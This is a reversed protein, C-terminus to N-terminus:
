CAFVDATDGGPLGRFRLKARTTDRAELDVGADGDHVLRQVVETNGDRAAVILPTDPM